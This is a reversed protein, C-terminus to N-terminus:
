SSSLATVKVPDPVSQRASESSARQSLPLAFAVVAGGDPANEAWVRGNHDEAIQKVLTLGIGTGRARPNARTRYFREFVRRFDRPPIGPGHDRVRVQVEKDVREVTVEVPSAEGYKIANDLLNVVALMVAQEDVRALPADGVRQLFVNAGDREFRARYTDISREALEYLDCEQMQYHFRGRDLIALDLVNEILGSLRESESGISELYRRRKQEDRVRGTLLVESFMRIVSLPTKLEHSVNAIFESKLANLRREKDAAFVVFVTGLLIIGLSLGILAAQYVNSTREKSHLLPAERPAVQLRWGYLTSPFRRGVVYDGARALSPGFVLRNDENEVNYVQKGTASAFLSPFVERVLYRTDHNVALYYRQDYHDVAKYSILHSRKDYTRHLHKLRGVKLQDLELHPLVKKVFRRLFRRQGVRRMRTAYGVVKKKSDLVVVATVSPSIKEAKTKWQKRVMEPRDLDITNFVANDGAIILKELRDVRDEALLLISHAISKEGLNRLQAATQYSYYGLVGSAVVIAPLLVLYVVKFRWGSM